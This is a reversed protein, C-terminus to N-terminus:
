EHVHEDHHHEHHGGSANELASVPNLVTANVAVGHQYVMAGGLDAGLVILVNLVAACLLFAVQGFFHKHVNFFARWLSLFGAVGLITFGFAEHREMIAHVAESHAVTAAAQLGLYAAVVACATGLYLLGSAVRYWQPQRFVFAVLEVFLFMTLLAIPFHVVLPHINAMSAVGPLLASVLDTRGSAASELVALFDGVMATIGEGHDGGGHVQFALGDNLSFM